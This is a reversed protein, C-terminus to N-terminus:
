PPLLVNKMRVGELICIAQTLVIVKRAWCLLSCIISNLNSIHFHWTLFHALSIQENREGGLRCCGWHVFDPLRHDAPGHPTATPTAPLRSFALQSASAEFLGKNTVCSFPYDEFACYCFLSFSFLAVICLLLLLFTDEATIYSNLM